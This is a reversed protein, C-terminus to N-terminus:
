NDPVFSFSISGRILLAGAVAYLSMTTGPAIIIASKWEFIKTDGAAAVTIDDIVSGGSLGTIDVGELVTANAKSGSGSNLNIPTIDTGGVPTGVDNLKVQIRDGTTPVILKIRSIWVPDNSNNKFYFFCDNAGTPTKSFSASFSQGARTRHEYITHMVSEVSLKNENSVAAAYGKGQGDEITLGM